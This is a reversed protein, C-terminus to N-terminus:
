SRIWRDPGTWRDSRSGLIIENRSPILARYSTAVCLPQESEFLVRISDLTIQSDIAREPDVNSVCDDIWVGTVEPAKERKGDADSPSSVTKATEHSQDTASSQLKRLEDPRAYVMANDAIVQVAYVQEAWTGCTDCLGFRM